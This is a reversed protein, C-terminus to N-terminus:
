LLYKKPIIVSSKFGGEQRYGIRLLADPGYFLKLREDINRLGVGWTLSKKTPQNSGSDLIDLRLNENEMMASIRITCKSLMKGVAHKISNEVLPQVLYCPIKISETEPEIEVRVELRNKFRAQEIELYKNLFEVEESITCTNPQNQDFTSKILDELKSLTDIAKQHDTHILFDVMNLTNFLFHPKLQAKLTSLTAKSLKEELQNGKDILEVQESFHAQLGSLVVIGWYSLFALSGSVLFQRNLSTIIYDLPESFLFFGDVAMRFFQALFIFIIVYALSIILHVIVERWSSFLPFYLSIKIVFPMLALPIIFYLCTYLFVTFVSNSQFYEIFYLDTAFLVIFYCVAVITLYKGSGKVFLLQKHMPLGKRM